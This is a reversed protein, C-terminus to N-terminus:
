TDKSYVKPIIVKPPPGLRLVDPKLLLDGEATLKHVTQQSAIIEADPFAKVLEVLFLYHDFQGHTIYM